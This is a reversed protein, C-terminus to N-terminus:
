DNIKLVATSYSPMKLESGSLEVESKDNKSNSANFGARLEANDTLKLTKSEDKSLNHVILLKDGKYEVYYSCVASDDFIKTKGITGRAIAPNQNKVRIVRKYFNLISSKDKQQQKVGGYSVHEANPGAGDTYIKPLKKSDWIMAERKYGDASQSADQTTGLEEGYYIFSNGPVLMYVAAGMKIQAADAFYNGSRIQDHNSLFFCNIANKNQKKTEAIYNKVSDALNGEMSTRVANVFPGSAGAYGFAFLSDIGSSYMQQIEANGTWHEGVMYVDKKIDQAMKYYWKLFEDGKTHANTYYLTADLRFGDANHEKLWFYAVMKFYDRTCQANLNWEPMSPSFNSEYYYGNGIATYKDGPSEDYRAIEFYKADDKLNGKLAQKCANVFLPNDKSCHNLVMDIILKIGRKHCEKVLKDFTKLTGFREDVDMYNQVDYKHYSPSPMIPTLWIGDVGLDDTTEPNGDNLYDLKDIIGQLDGVADNDSDNFASVFIQYYNRFKDTSPKAELTEVPDSAGCGGLCAALITLTLIIALLKKM